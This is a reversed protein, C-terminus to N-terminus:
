RITIMEAKAKKKIDKSSGTDFITLYIYIKQNDERTLKMLSARKRLVPKKQIM